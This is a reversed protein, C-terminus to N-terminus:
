PAVSTVTVDIPLPSEDKDTRFLEGDLTVTDFVGTQADVVRDVISFTINFLSAEVFETSLLDPASIVEFTQVLSGKTATTIAGRVRDLRFYGELQNAISRSEKGYVTYQILLTYDTEWYPNGDGNVGSSLLWGKTQSTNLVDYTIYPYDPKPANPRREIIAPFKDGAPGIEALRGGVAEVASDIFAQKILEYNIM